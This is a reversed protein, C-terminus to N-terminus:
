GASGNEDLSAIFGEATVENGQGSVNVVALDDASHLSNDNGKIIADGGQLTEIDNGQGEVSLTDFDGISLINEDGRVVLDRVEEAAVSINRGEVVIKRCSGGLSYNTDPEDLTVSRQAECSITEIPRGDAHRDGNPTVQVTICGTLGLLLMAALPLVLVRKM